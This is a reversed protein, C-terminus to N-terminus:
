YRRQSRWDSQVKGWVERERDRKEKKREKRAKRGGEGGGGEGKMVGRGEETKGERPSLHQGKRSFVSSPLNLPCLDLIPDQVQSM